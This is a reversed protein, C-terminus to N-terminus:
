AQLMRYPVNHLTPPGTPGGSRSAASWFLENPNGGGCMGAYSTTQAPTAGNEILAKLRALEKRVESPNPATSRRGTRDHARRGPWASLYLDHRAPRRRRQHSRHRAIRDALGPDAVPRRLHAVRGRAASSDVGLLQGRGHSGVGAGPGADTDSPTSSPPRCWITCSTADPTARPRTREASRSSM